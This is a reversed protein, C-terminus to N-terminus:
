HTSLVQTCVLEVVGSCWPFSFLSFFAVQGTGCRLDDDFNHAKDQGRRLQVDPCEVLTETRDEGRWRKQWKYKREHIKKPILCYKSEKDLNEARSGIM